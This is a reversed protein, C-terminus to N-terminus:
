FYIESRVSAKLLQSNNEPWGPSKEYSIKSQVPVPEKELFYLQVPIPKRGCVNKPSARAESFQGVERSV